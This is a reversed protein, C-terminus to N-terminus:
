SSSFSNGNISSLSLSPVDESDPPPPDESSVASVGTSLLLTFLFFFPKKQIQKILNNKNQKNDLDCFVFGKLRLIPWYYLNPSSLLAGERPGYFWLHMRIKQTHESLIAMASGQQVIVLLQITGRLIQPLDYLDVRSLIRPVVLPAIYELFYSIIPVSIGFLIIM